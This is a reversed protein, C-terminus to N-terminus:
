GYPCTNPSKESLFVVGEDTPTKSQNMAPLGDAVTIGTERYVVQGENM